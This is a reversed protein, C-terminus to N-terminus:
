KAEFEVINYIKLDSLTFELINNKIKVEKVEPTIKDPTYLKVSNAEIGKAINAFDVKVKVNKVPNDYNVFHILYRNTGRKHVINAAIFDSPREISIINSGTVETIKNVLNKRGEKADMDNFVSTPMQVDALNRLELSSGITIIKGGNKKFQKIIDVLSNDVWTINPIILTKYNKLMQIDNLRHLLIVEYMVNMEALTNYLNDRKLSVEFSPVLPPALIGINSVTFVQTYLDQNDALFTYYQAINNWIEMALANDKKLWHNFMKSGSEAIAFHSQFASAEAIPKQWGYKMSDRVDYAGPNPVGPDSGEYKSRYPKVENGVAYYFRAQPINHIWKGDWVGAETTGESKTLDCVEDVLINGKCNGYITIERDNNKAINRVDYLLDLVDGTGGIAYDFYIEDVNVEVQIKVQELVSNRYNLNALDAAFVNGPQQWRKAGYEDHSIWSELEPNLILDRLRVAGLSNFATVRINNEHCRDIFSKVKYYEETNRKNPVHVAVLNIKAEKFMEFMRDLQNYDVGTRYFNVKGRKAWDPIDNEHLVKEGKYNFIYDFDSITAPRGRSLIHYTQGLLTPVRQTVSEIVTGIVEFGDTGNKKFYAIENNGDKLIKPDVPIVYKGVIDDASNVTYFQAKGKAELEVDIKNEFEGSLPPIEYRVENITIYADGKAEIGSALFILGPNSINKDVVNVVFGNMWDTRGTMYYSYSPSVTVGTYVKSEAKQCFVSSSILLFSALTLMKSKWVSKM